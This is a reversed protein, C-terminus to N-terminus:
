PSFTKFLAKVEDPSGADSVKDALAKMEMLTHNCLMTKVKPLASTTMSLDNIGMGLLCAAMQPDSAMEGCVNVPIQQKDAGEITMRILKWVAPHLPQYLESIKENGRDVALTYQTLDNTGISFFEVEKALNGAMLAASPVEIMVGVPVSKDFPIKKEQLEQQVRDIQNRLKAIESRCSIMPVLLKIRDPYEGSLRYVAELQNHLLDDRDLLMRIGRWGLFPNAETDTDELLKDGGADFLRITVSDDGSAEVVKKYFTIQADVDFGTKRFLITETRLLGVGTAGHSEIRPLEDLFEVNARLTFESGCATQNPKQVVELERNYVELQRQRIDDYKKLEEEAPRAIVTGSEGDLIAQEGIKIMSNKWKAGIVCPIGLSQSLIVAHSTLGGKQMVIGAIENRSLEIMQTPSVNVAFVIAGKEVKTERNKNKAADILQDRITMLDITRDRLWSADANEMIHIYENMTSFIAYGAEYREAEIKNLISKRLEPDNLTEIQADMIQAIEGEADQKLAQFEKRMKEFARNCKEVHFGVESESIKEPNVDVRGEELIYANGIGVGPSASTGKFEIRETM